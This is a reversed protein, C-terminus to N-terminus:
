RFRRGIFADLWRDPLLWILKSALKADRGVLYRTKPRSATLAQRVARAVESAPVANQSVNAVRERIKQVAAGYLELARPPAKEMRRNAAEIGKDWIPTQIAGPEVVSVYIGFPSLERRLADSFSELAHKSMTYPGMMPASVRGSISSMNVIRGRAKRISPLFAQTVLVQGFVNVEFQYRLDDIPAFELPASTAIGANNVLGFLGEDGLYKEVAAAAARISSEDTVDLRIPSISRSAAELSAADSEKRVSAFVRFDKALDLAIARGIGSSAGTVVVSPKSM